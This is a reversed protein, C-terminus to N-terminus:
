VAAMVIVRKAEVNRNAQPKSLRDAHVLLLKLSARLSEAQVHDSQDSIKRGVQHRQLNGTLEDLATGANAGIL